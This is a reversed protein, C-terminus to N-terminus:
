AGASRTPAAAEAPTSPVSNSGVSPQPTTMGQQLMKTFDVTEPRRLLQELSRVQSATGGDNAAKVMAKLWEMAAQAGAPALVADQKSPMETPDQKSPMEALDQKSPM